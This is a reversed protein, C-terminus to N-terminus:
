MGSLKSIIEKMVESAGGGITLLRTDRFNRAIEYEEMYGYGGYVQMCRTSIEVAAETCFLKAMAVERTCDIGRNILDVGHYALARGAAVQTMM